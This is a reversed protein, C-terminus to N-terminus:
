LGNVLLKNETVSILAYRRPLSCWFIDVCLSHVFENRAGYFLNIFVFLFHLFTIGNIENSFNIKFRINTVHSKWIVCMQKNIQDAIAIDIFIAFFRYKRLKLISQLLPINVRAIIMQFFFIFNLNIGRKKPTHFRFNSPTDWRAKFDKKMHKCKM